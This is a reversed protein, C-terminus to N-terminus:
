ILEEMRIVMEWPFFSVHRGDETSPERSSAITVGDDNEEMLYGIDTCILPKHERTSVYYNSGSHWADLWTVEYIKATSM